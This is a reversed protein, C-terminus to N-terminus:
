SAESTFCIFLFFFSLQFLGGRPLPHRPKSQFKAREKDQNTPSAQTMLDNAEPRRTAQVAPIGLESPSLVGIPCRM